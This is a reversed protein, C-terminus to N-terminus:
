LGLKAFLKPMTEEDVAEMDVLELSKVMELTSTKYRQFHPTGLHLEYADKDAYIELIRFETPNDKQYMPYIAIVGPELRVSEAAEEKLIAVYEDLYNPAVQVESIRIIMDVATFKRENSVTHDSALFLGLAIVPLVVNVRAFRSNKVLYKM